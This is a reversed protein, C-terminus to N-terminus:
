ITSGNGEIAAATALFGPPRRLRLNLSSIAAHGGDQGDQLFVPDERRALFERPLGVNRAHVGVPLQALLGLAVVGPEPCALRALVQEPLLGEAAGQIVRVRREELPELVAREIGRVVAQVAVQLRLRVLGRDDELGVVALHGADGVPLETAM